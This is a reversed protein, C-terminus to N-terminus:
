RLRPSYQRTLRVFGAADRLPALAADPEVYDKWFAAQQGPPVLALAGRVLELARGQYQRRLESRPSRELPDAPLRGAARAFTRAANYLLRPSAPGRKVAEDADTVAARWDGLLVRAYGRGSRADASGPDLRLAEEFDPLALRPSELILYSWGRYTLTRPDARGGEQRDV